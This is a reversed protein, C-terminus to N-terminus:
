QCRTGGKPDNPDATRLLVFSEFDSGSRAEGGQPPLARFAVGVRVVQPATTADLPTTLLLDPTAPPTPSTFGYYRLFPLAVGNSDTAPQVGTALTRTEAPTGSWTLNPLSGGSSDYVTETITGDPAGSYALVHKRPAFAENGLGTPGRRAVDAYFTM